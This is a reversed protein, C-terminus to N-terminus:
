RETTERKSSCISNRMLMGMFTSGSGGVYRFDKGFTLTAEPFKKSIITQGRVERLPVASTPSQALTVAALAFAACSFTSVEGVLTIKNM